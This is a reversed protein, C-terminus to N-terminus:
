SPTGQFPLFLKHPPLKSPSHRWSATTHPCGYSVSPPSATMSAESLQGERLHISNSGLLTRRPTPPLIAGKRGEKQHLLHDRSHQSLWKDLPWTHTLLASGVPGHAVMDCTEEPLFLLAVWPLMWTLRRRSMQVSAPRCRQVGTEMAAALARPSALLPPCPEVLWM